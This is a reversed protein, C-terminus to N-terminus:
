DGSLGPIGHVTGPDKNIVSWKGEASRWSIRYGIWARPSGFIGVSLREEFERNAREIANTLDVALQGGSGPVEAATLTKKDEYVTLVIVVEFASDLGVNRFMWTPEPELFGARWDVDGRELQM